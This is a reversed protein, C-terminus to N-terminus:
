WDRPACKGCGKVRVQDAGQPAAMSPGSEAASETPERGGPMVQCGARHLGSKGGGAEAHCRHRWGSYRAAIARGVGPASSLMKSSRGDPTQGRADSTQRRVDSTQRWSPDTSGGLSAMKGLMSQPYGSQSAQTIFTEGIF